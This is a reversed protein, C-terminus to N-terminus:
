RRHVAALAQELRDTIVADVGLAVMADLDAPANVTWVNVALGAGHARGVLPADVQTVFPHLAQFRREIALELAAGADAQWGVLLGLALSADAARVAALTSIEFSSILVGEAEESEAVVVATATAVAETPDHGPDTPSNKVEVNVRMGHCAVLAEALLPVHRPLQHVELASVPGLGPVVADHHVVLAGDASRRVDLEVGDAGRRRAEFFAELTNEVCHSTDGRHAFVATPV